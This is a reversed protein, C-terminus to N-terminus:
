LTTLLGAIFQLILAADIANVSGDGNVDGLDFIPLAPLLGASFQLVLAADIANINADGNVDGRLGPPTSTPRPVPTSTPLPTETEAPNPSPPVPLTPFPTETEVPSPSPSPSPTPPAAAVIITGRMSTPHINCQYQFTGPSNFTESFTGSAMNGSHWLRLGPSGIASGCSGTCETTTHTVSTSNFDWTVTDGVHIETECDGTQNSADCFWFEGVEIFVTAASAPTARQSGVSLWLVAAIGVLLGAIAISRAVPGLWERRM